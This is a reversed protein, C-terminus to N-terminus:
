EAKTRKFVWQSSPQEKSKTDVQHIKNKIDKTLQKKKYTMYADEYIENDLVRESVEGMAIDMNITAYMSMYSLLWLQVKTLDTTNQFIHLGLDKATVYMSQYYDSKAIIRLVPVFDTM